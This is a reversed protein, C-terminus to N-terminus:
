VRSRAIYLARYECLFLGLLSLSLSLPFREKREEKRSPGLEGRFRPSFLSVHFVPAVISSLIVPVRLYPNKICSTVCLARTLRCPKQERISKKRALHQQEKERKEKEKDTKMGIKHLRQHDDPGLFFQRNSSFLFFSFSCSFEITFLFFVDLSETSVSRRQIPPSPPPEKPLIRSIKLKEEENQHITSFRATIGTELNKIDKKKRLQIKAAKLVLRSFRHSNLKWIYKREIEEM